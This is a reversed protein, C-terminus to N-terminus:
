SERLGSAGLSITLQKLQDDNWKGGEPIKRGVFVEPLPMLDYKEFHREELYEEAMIRGLHVQYGVDEQMIVDGTEYVVIVWEDNEDFYHSNNARMLGWGDREPHPGFILQFNFISDKESPNTDAFYYQQVKKPSNQENNKAGKDSGFLFDRLGM